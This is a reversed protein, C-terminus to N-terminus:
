VEVVDNELRGIGDIDISVRDGPRLTFSESPVLSTGTLLVATHPVAQHSTYCDVLDECTRVMEGTNTSGEYEVRGDRTITMTMALDHPDGISGASVVAPGLACSRDYVKAQPLYLPNAGEISRSSVDNGITYGVIDGDLLVVGLEPEPVNWESDGRVGVADGPDVIRSPTAKFFIEPRDSEYVDLYVEPMGSEAERAQESIQYTVGAAWVEDPVVPSLVEKEIPEDTRDADEIHDRAIEDISRKAIRSALALDYFSNLAADTSTLDYARTGDVAVLTTAGGASQRYYRM